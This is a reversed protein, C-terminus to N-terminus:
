ARSTVWASKEKQKNVAAKESLLLCAEVLLCILAIYIFIPWIESQLQDRSRNSLEELVQVQLDGFLDAADDKDLVELSDESVPRNLAVLKTGS